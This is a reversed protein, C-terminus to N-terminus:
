KRLTFGGNHISEYSRDKFSLFWTEKASKEKKRFWTKFKFDERKCPKKEWFLCVKGTHLRTETKRILSSSAMATVRAPSGSRRRHLRRSSREIDRSFGPQNIKESYVRWKFFVPNSGQLHHLHHSLCNQLFYPEYSVFGTKTNPIEVSTPNQPDPLFFPSAYGPRRVSPM